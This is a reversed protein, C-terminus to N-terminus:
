QMNKIFLEKMKQNVKMPRAEVQSYYNQLKENKFCLYELLSDIQITGNLLIPKEQYVLEEEM